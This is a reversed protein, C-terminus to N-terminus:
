PGSYLEGVCHTFHMTPRAVKKGRLFPPLDLFTTIIYVCMYILKEKLELLKDACMIYTHYILIASLDYVSRGVERRTRERVMSAM